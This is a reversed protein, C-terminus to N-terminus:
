HNMERELREVAEREYRIFRKGFGMAKLKGSRQLHYITATSCNWRLALENRTFLKKESNEKKEMIKPM